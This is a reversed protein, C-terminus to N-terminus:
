EKKEGEKWNAGEIALTELFAGMEFITKDDIAGGWAPM